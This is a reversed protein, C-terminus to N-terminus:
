VKGKRRFMEKQGLIQFLKWYDTVFVLWEVASVESGNWKSPIKSSATEAENKIQLLLNLWFLYM